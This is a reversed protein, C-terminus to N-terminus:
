FRLVPFKLPKNTKTFPKQHASSPFLPADAKNEELTQDLHSGYQNNRAQTMDRSSAHEDGTKHTHALVIIAIKSFQAHSVENSMITKPLNQTVGVQKSPRPVTPLQHLSHATKHGMKLTMPSLLLYCQTVTRRNQICNSQANIRKRTLM